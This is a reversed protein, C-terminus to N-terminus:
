VLTTAIQMPKSYWEATIFVYKKIWNRTFSVQIWLKVHSLKIIFCQLRVRQMPKLDDVCHVEVFFINQILIGGKERTKRYDDDEYPLPEVVCVSLWWQQLEVVQWTNRCLLYYYFLTPSTWYHRVNHCSLFWFTVEGNTRTKSFWFCRSSKRETNDTIIVDGEYPM